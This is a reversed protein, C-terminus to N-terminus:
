APLVVPLSAIAESTEPKVEIGHEKFRRQLEGEAKLTELYLKTADVVTDLAEEISEGFSAVGLELCQATYHGDEEHIVFHLELQGGGTSMM